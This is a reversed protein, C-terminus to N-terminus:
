REAGVARLAFTSIDAVIEDIAPTESALPSLPGVLAEGVGGVVAAASLGVNKEPVV